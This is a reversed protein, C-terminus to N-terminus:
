CAKGHRGASLLLSYAYLRLVARFLWTWHVVVSSAGALRIGYRAMRIAFPYRLYGLRLPHWLDDERLIRVKELDLMTSRLDRVGIAFQKVPHETEADGQGRLSHPSQGL